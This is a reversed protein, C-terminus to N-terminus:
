IGFLGVVVGVAGILSLILGIFAVTGTGLILLLLGGILLIGAGIVQIPRNMRTKGPHSPALQRSIKRNMVKLVIREMRNMPRYASGEKLRQQPRDSVGLSKERNIREQTRNSTLLQNGQRAYAVQVTETERPLKPSEIRAPVTPLVTVAESLSTARPTSETTGRQFYAVPRSCSSFLFAGILAVRMHQTITTMM